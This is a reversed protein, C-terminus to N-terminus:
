KISGTEQIGGAVDHAFWGVVTCEKTGVSDVLRSDDGLTSYKVLETAVVVIIIVGEGAAGVADTVLVCPTEFGELTGPLPRWSGLPM